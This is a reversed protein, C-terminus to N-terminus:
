DLFLLGLIKLKHISCRLPTRYALCVPLSFTWLLLHLSTVAAQYLKVFRSRYPSL